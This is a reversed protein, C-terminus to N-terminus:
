SPPPRFRVNLMRHESRHGSRLTIPTLCRSQQRSHQAHCQNELTRHHTPPTKPRQGLSSEKPPPPPPLSELQQIVGLIWRPSPRAEVVRKSRSMGTSEREMSLLWGGLDDEFEKGLEPCRM